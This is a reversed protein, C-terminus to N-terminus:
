CFFLGVVLYNKWCLSPHYESKVVKRAAIAEMLPHKVKEKKRWIDSSFIIDIVKGVIFLKITFM